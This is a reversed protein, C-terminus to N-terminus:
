LVQPIKIASDDVYSYNINEFKFRFVKLYVCTMHQRSLVSEKFFHLCTMTSPEAMLM